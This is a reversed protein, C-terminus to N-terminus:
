SPHDQGYANRQIKKKIEDKLHELVSQKDTQDLIRRVVTKPSEAGWSAGHELYYKAANGVIYSGYGAAAGQPIATLVTGTGGTLVKFVNVVLHTALETATVWGAAAAISRILGQANVWSMELGYVRSLAVVMAVDVVTGGIVDAVPIMNVGVAVAKTAAFNWIMQNARQERLEIRLKAIRDTKDAAYMAANLAVLALGDHALIELVRAKLQTVDAPPRQWESRERGQEDQVVYEVERPDAATTVFNEAPILDSLRDDRLTRTLYDLEEASYLDKKNLVVLIPKHVSTLAVIASYEVENLDSDTVFLILDGRRAAARAITEHDSDGVENIGPTDVLVLHSGDLGPIVYDTEEWAVSQSQKTWGGQVDVEAVQKGALANILASKGTSIEGFIVIEVRGATLKREMEQLQSLDNRLQEKEEPTCGRYREVAKRVTALADQFARHTASDVPTM